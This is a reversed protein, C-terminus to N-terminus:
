GARGVEATLRVTTAQTVSRTEALLAATGDLANQRGAQELQRVREALQAAGISGCSSKLKHAIQYVDAAVGATIAVQLSDLQVPLDNLFASILDAFEEEMVERLEAIIEDDLLLLPDLQIDRMM